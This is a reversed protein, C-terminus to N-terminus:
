LTALVNAKNVKTKALKPLEREMSNVELAFIKPTPKDKSMPTTRARAILAESHYTKITATMLTIAITMFARNETSETITVASLM